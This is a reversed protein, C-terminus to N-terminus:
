LIFFYYSIKKSSYFSNTFYKIFHLDPLNLLNKSVDEFYFNESYNNKYPISTGLLNVFNSLNKQSFCYNYLLKNSTLNVYNIKSNLSKEGSYSKEYLEIFQNNKAQTQLFKFRKVVWFNSTEFFNSALMNNIVTNNNLFSYAMNNHKLQEQLKLFNTNNSLKNSLWINTNSSDKEYFPLGYLKKIHTINSTKLINKHSLISSKWFWRNEKAAVLNQSINTTLLSQNIFFNYFLSNSNISVTYINSFNPYFYSINYKKELTTINSYLPTVVEINYKKNSELYIINKLESYYKYLNEINLTINNSSNIMLDVRRDTLSLLNTTKCLHYALSTINDQPLNNGRLNFKKKFNYEKYSKQQKTNSITIKESYFLTPLSKSLFLSLKIYLSYLISLLLLSIYSVFDQLIFWIKSPVLFFTSIDNSNIKFLFLLSILGLIFIIFLSLFQKPFSLKINQIKLDSWKSNRYVNGLNSVTQSHKTTREFFIRTTSLFQNAYKLNNYYKTLFFQIVKNASNM